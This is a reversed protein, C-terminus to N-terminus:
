HAQARHEEAHQAGQSVQVAEEPRRHEDDRDHADHLRKLPLAPANWPDCVQGLLESTRFDQLERLEAVFFGPKGPLPPRAKPQQAQRLHAEATTTKTKTSTRTKMRTKTKMTRTSIRTRSTKTKTRTTTTTTPM